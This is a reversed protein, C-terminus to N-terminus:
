SSADESKIMQLRAKAPTTTTPEDGADYLVQWCDRCEIRRLDSVEWGSKRTELLTRHPCPYDDRSFPPHYDSM